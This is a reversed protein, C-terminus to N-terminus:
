LTISHTNPRQYRNREQSAQDARLGLDLRKSRFDLCARRSFDGAQTKISSDARRVSKARYFGFRRTMKQVAAKSDEFLNLPGAILYRKM